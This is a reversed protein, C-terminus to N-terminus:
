KEKKNFLKNEDIYMKLHRKSRFFGGKAKLYLNRFNGTTLLSKAKLGKLITRQLRIRNIWTRKEDMRTKKKGRRSGQGRQRGKQKQKQNKRANGRSQGKTPKVGIRGENVLKKIDVRTIAQKIDELSEEDFWIKFKSVGLVDAALKKQLTLKKM